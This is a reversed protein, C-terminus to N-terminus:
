STQALSQATQCEMLVEFWVLLKMLEGDVLGLALGEFMLGSLLGESLPTLYRDFCRGLDKEGLGLRLLPAENGLVSVEPMPKVYQSFEKLWQRALGPWHVMLGTNM